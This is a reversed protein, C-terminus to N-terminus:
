LDKISSIPLVPKQKSTSGGFFLYMSISFIVIAFGLLVYEATRKEKITGGSLKMVLKVMRPINTEDSFKAGKYSDTEFKIGAVEKQPTIFTKIPSSDQVGQPAGTKAEFEKLAKDIESNNPIKTEPPM